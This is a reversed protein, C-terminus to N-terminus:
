GAAEAEAKAKDLDVALARDTHQRVLALLHVRELNVRALEATLAEILYQAELDM